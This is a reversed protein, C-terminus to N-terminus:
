MGWRVGSLVLLTGITFYPALTVPRQLLAHKEPAPKAVVDPLVTSAVNRTVTGFFTGPGATWVLHLISALAAVVYSYVLALVGLETGLVVGIVAALKVDGAGGGALRYIGYMILFATGGGLLADLFGLYAWPEYVPLPAAESVPAVRLSAILSFGLVWLFAPYVVWNPIKRWRFDTYASIALTLLLVAGACTGVIQPAPRGSWLLIWLPGLVLPAVFMLPWGWSRGPIPTDPPAANVPTEITANSMIARENWFFHRARM